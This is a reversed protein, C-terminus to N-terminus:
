SSGGPALTVPERYNGAIHEGQLNRIFMLRKATRDHIGRSIYDRSIVLDTM